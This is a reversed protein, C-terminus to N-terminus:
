VQKNLNKTKKIQSEGHHQMELDKSKCFKVSCEIPERARRNRDRIRSLQHSAEAEALTEISPHSASM